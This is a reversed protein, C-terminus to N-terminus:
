PQKYAMFSFAGAIKRIRVDESSKASILSGAKWWIRHSAQLPAILITRFVRPMKPFLGMKAQAVLVPWRPNPVVFRVKLGGARLTNYTGLHTHHYFSTGHFPELFSVSGIFIGGPELVRSVEKMMAFPFQIHELVAISLVFEFSEDRFPLAHADGLFPAGDAEYDIGVYSFGAHECVGRHQASGCGLDLALSAETRAHPFYGLLDHSLHRPADLGSFDVEPTPNPILKGFYCDNDPVFAKGVEFKHEITKPRKLRLDLRQRHDLLYEEDCRQCYVGREMVNLEVGCYPCALVGGCQEEISNLVIPKTESM